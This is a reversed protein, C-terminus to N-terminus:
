KVIGIHVINITKHGVSKHRAIFQALTEGSGDHWREPDYILGNEWPVIHANNEFRVSLSGRGIKPISNIESSGPNILDDRKCICSTSLGLDRCTMRVAYWFRDSQEQSAYGTNEIFLDSWSTVNAHYFALSKVTGVDVNSLAALTALMCEQHEQRPVKM